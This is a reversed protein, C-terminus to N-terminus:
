GVKVTGVHGRIQTAPNGVPSWGFLGGSGGLGSDPRPDRLSIADTTVRPSQCQPNDQDLCEPCVLLGNPRKNEIQAKLQRLKYTFGCRDCIGLAWPASSYRHM